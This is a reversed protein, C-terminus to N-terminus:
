GDSLSETDGTHLDVPDDRLCSPAPWHGLSLTQLSCLRVVDDRTVQSGTLQQAGCAEKTAALPTMLTGLPLKPGM